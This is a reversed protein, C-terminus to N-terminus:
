NLILQMCVDDHWAGNKHGIQKFHGVKEFGFSRHFEISAENQANIGAIITHIGKKRAAEILHRGLAQGAGSRRHDHAVYLSGTATFRYGSLPHFPTLAGMGIVLGSKEAVLVPYDRKQLSEIWEQRDEVKEIQEAYNNLSHNVEFNYINSIETADLKTASRITWGM